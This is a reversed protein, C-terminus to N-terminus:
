CQTPEIKVRPKILQQPVDPATPGISVDLLSRRSDLHPWGNSRSADCLLSAIGEISRTIHQQFLCSVSIDVRLFM